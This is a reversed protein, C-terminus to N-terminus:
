KHRRAALGRFALAVVLLALGAAGAVPLQGPALVTLVFPQTELIINSGNDYVCTYRGADSQMVPNFVLHESDTGTLRDDEDALDVGDKRWRHSAGAPAVLEIRRGELIFGSGESCTIGGARPFTDLPIKWFVPDYTPGVSQYTAIYLSGGDVILPFGSIATPDFIGPWQRWVSWHEGDVTYYIGQNTQGPSMPDDGIRVAFLLGGGSVLLAPCPVVSSVGTWTVGDSTRWVTAGGSPVFSNYTFPPIMYWTGVQAVAYLQGQFVAMSTVREDSGAVVDSRTWTQSDVTEYACAMSYLTNHYDWGCLMYQRNGFSVGQFPAVGDAAWPADALQTWSAGGDDSRYVSASDLPYECDSPPMPPLGAAELLLSDGHGFFSVPAKDQMGSPLTVPTWAAGDTTKWLKAPGTQFPFSSCDSSGFGWAYVAGGARAIFTDGRDESTLTLDFKAGDTTVALSAPSMHETVKYHTVNPSTIFGTELALGVRAGGHAMPIVQAQSWAGFALFFGAL